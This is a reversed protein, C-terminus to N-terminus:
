AAELPEGKVRRGTVAMDVILVALAVWVLCFGILREAPMEEHLVFIALLFSIVPSSYQFFGLVVLPLRRSAAAFLLLPAATAFGTSVLGVM